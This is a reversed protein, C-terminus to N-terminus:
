KKNKSQLKNLFAINNDIISRYEDDLNFYGAINTLDNIGNDVKLYDSYLDNLTIGYLSCLEIILSISGKSQNTELQGIYRPACDIKECVQEQTLGCSQRANKLKEGIKIEKNKHRM